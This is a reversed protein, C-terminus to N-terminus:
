STPIARRFIEKAKEYAARFDIYSPKDGALM